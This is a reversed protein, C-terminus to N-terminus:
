GLRVAADKALAAIAASIEPRNIHFREIDRHNPPDLRRVAEALDM